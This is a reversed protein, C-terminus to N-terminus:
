NLAELKLIWEIAEDLSLCRHMTTKLFRKELSANMYMMYNYYVIASGAMMHYKEVKGWDQPDVSYSNVRNSIYGLKVDKGYFKIVEKVVMEIKSWDFHVGSHLESILFKECFYFDGFPMELKYYSLTKSLLTNEFKM